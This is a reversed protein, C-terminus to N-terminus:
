VVPILELYTFELDNSESLSSLVPVYRRHQKKQADKERLMM